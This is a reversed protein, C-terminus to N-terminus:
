DFLSFEPERRARQITEPLRSGWRWSYWAAGLCAAGYALEFGAYRLWQEQTVFAWKAPAYLNAEPEGGFLDWFGKFAILGGWVAFIASTLRALGRIKITEQTSATQLLDGKM